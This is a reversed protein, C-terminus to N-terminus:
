SRQCSQHVEKSGSVVQWHISKEIQSNSLDLLGSLAQEENDRYLKSARYFGNIVMSDAKADKCCYVMIARCNDRKVVIKIDSYCTISRGCVSYKMCFLILDVVADFLCWDSLSAHEFLRYFVKNCVEASCRVQLM